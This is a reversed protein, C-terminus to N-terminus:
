DAGLAGAENISDHNQVVGDDITLQDEKALFPETVVPTGLSAQTLQTLILSILSLPGGAMSLLDRKTLAVGTAPRVVAEAAVEGDFRRGTHLIAVTRTAVLHVSGEDRRHVELSTSMEHSHAGKHPKTSGRVVVLRIGGITPGAERKSDM